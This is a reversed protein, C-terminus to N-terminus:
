FTGNSIIRFFDYTRWLLGVDVPGDFSQVYASVGFNSSLSM